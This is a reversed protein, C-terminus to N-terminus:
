TDDEGTSVTCDSGRPHLYHIVRAGAGHDTGSHFKHLDEACESCRRYNVSRFRTGTVPCLYFRGVLPVRALIRGLLRIAKSTM